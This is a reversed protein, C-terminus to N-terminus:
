KKVKVKFTKSVGNCKVTIKATGKKKATVKGNGDVTAVKKNSSKFTAKGAPTAKVKITTTAGVKLTASSKTLKITPKKVTVKCTVTKNKGNIKVTATIKATGKKKATIVGNKSVTAVKKNSTKYTVNKNVGYVKTNLNFTKIGATYLTAKTAAIQISPNVVTVNVSQKIGNATATITVTGAKKATVVGGAVTAVAANSTTWTVNQSDGSVTAKVTTKEGVGITTVGASISLTNQKLGAMASILAAMKADIDKQAPKAEKLLAEAAKIANQLANWTATTYTGKAIKKAETVKAQLTATDNKLDGMAATLATLKANITDEFSKEEALVAEAEKIANQLDNWTATTYNGKTLLKAEAVKAQLATTDGYKRLSDSNFRISRYFFKGSYTSHVVFAIDQDLSEVPVEYQSGAKEQGAANVYTIKRLQKIWNEEGAKVAEAENGFYLYDYAQGNFTLLATMKGDKSTLEANVVTVGGATVGVNYEGEDAVKAPEQPTDSSNGTDKDGTEAKKMAEKVADQIALSTRTARTVTDIEDASNKAVIQEGVGSEHTINDKNMYIYTGDMAWTMYSINSDLPHIAKTYKVDAVKGGEITVTVDVDYAQDFDSSAVPTVHATTTYNGDLMSAKDKKQLSSSDVRLSRYFWKGSGAAHSALTIDRDLSEVPILFQAGTKTAGSANVYQKKGVVGCWADKGADVADHADGLYLYDFGTGSLTVLVSMKGNESRLESDIVTIGNIVTDATYVGDEAIKAEGQPQDPTPDPETYTDEGTEAKTLIEKIADQVGIVTRTAGTINDINDVDEATSKGVLQENFGKYYTVEGTSTTYVYEGNLVFKLYSINGDDLPIDRDYKISAIKSDQIKVVVGIDYGVRPYGNAAPTIHATAIYTGDHLKKRLTDSNFRISRYFFKGSYTSHVVFAIDRDLSEVPIEYQSGAKEQGDANVYTIKRLQKVWNEEGAKVAEAENGLYLYDYAQGNFTLLATMKGDKSTLEADVVTVGGATVGIKYEGDDAIKAPEQPTDTSNGTDKDGTEAKKLAEKVADQIALSSRTARTVTDIEDASNKAVIQEGVGNEHTIDDKSKYIYTGDMAWTLYSINSDLPSIAKAYKIDAIKGDAITVTVDIDYAQDFDSSAVPTVHATTTYNGDQWTVDKAGEADCSINISYEIDHAETMAITTGKIIVAQNLLMPVNFVSGTYETGTVPTYETDNVVLKTYKTSSFVITAYPIGEKVEVKPCTITTKGSGGAFAFNTPTYTGDKYKVSNVDFTRVGELQQDEELAVIEDQDADANEVKTEPEAVESAETKEEEEPVDIESAVSIEEAEDAESVVETSEEADQATEEVTSEYTEAEPAIGTEAYVNPVSMVTMSVAMLLACLRKSRNKM